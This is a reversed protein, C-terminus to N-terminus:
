NKTDLVADSGGSYTSRMVNVTYDIYELANEILINNQDNREKLLELSQKLRDYIKVYADYDEQEKIIGALKGLTLEARKQNLVLAIDDMISAVAKECKQYKGVYTNEHATIAKLAETDNKIITDKKVHALETLAEIHATMDGLKEMLDVILGAM